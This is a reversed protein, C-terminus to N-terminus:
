RGVCIHQLRLDLLGFLGIILDSLQPLVVQYQLSSIEILLHFLVLLLDFVERRGLFPELREHFLDLGLNLCHQCLHASTHSFIFPLIINQVEKLRQHMVRCEYPLQQIRRLVCQELPSLVPHHSPRSPPSPQSPIPFIPISPFTRLPTM